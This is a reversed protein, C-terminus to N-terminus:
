RSISGSKEKGKLLEALFVRSKKSEKHFEYPYSIIFGIVALSVGLFPILHAPRLNLDQKWQLQSFFILIFIFIIALVTCVLFFWLLTILILEFFAPRLQISIVTNGKDASLSGKIIPVFISKYTALRKIIFSNTTTIGIYDRNGYEHVFPKAPMHEPYINAAIRSIVEKESLETTLQYRLVPFYKKLLKM